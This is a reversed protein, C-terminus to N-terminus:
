CLKFQVGRRKSFRLLGHLRYRIATSHRATATFKANKELRVDAHSHM